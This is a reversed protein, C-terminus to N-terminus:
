PSGSEKKEGMVRTDTFTGDDNYARITYGDERLRRAYKGRVGGTFDYAARM